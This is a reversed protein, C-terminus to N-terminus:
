QLLFYYQGLCIAIPPHAKGAPFNEPSSWTPIPCWWRPLSPTMGMPYLAAACSSSMLVLLSTCSCSPHRWGSRPWPPYWTARWLHPHWRGEPQQLRLHAKRIRGTAISRKRCLKCHLHHSVPMQIHFKKVKAISELCYIGSRLLEHEIKGLLQSIRDGGLNQEKSLNHITKSKWWLSVSRWWCSTSPQFTSLCPIM